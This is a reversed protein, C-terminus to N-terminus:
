LKLLTQPRTQGSVVGGNLPRRPDFEAAQWEDYKLKLKQPHPDPHSGWQCPALVQYNEYSLWLIFITRPSLKM